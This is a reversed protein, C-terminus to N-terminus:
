GRMWGIKSGTPDESKRSEGERARERNNTTFFHRQDRPPRTRTRLAFRTQTRPPASACACLGFVSLMREIALPDSWRSVNPTGFWCVTRCVFGVLGNLCQVLTDHVHPRDIWVGVRGGSMDSVVSRATNQACGLHRKGRDFCSQRIGM